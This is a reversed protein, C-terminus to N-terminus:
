CVFDKNPKSIYHNDQPWPIEAEWSVNPPKLSILLPFNGKFIDLLICCFLIDDKLIFVDSKKNHQMSKSVKM